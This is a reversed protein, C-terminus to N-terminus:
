KRKRGNKLVFGGSMVPVVYYRFGIALGCSQILLEILPRSVVRFHSLQIDVKFGNSDPFIFTEKGRRRFSVGLRLDMEDALGKSILICEPRLSVFMRRPKLQEVTKPNYVIEKALTM